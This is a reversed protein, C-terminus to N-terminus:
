RILSIRGQRVRRTSILLLHATEEKLTNEADRRTGATIGSDPEQAAGKNSRQKEDKRSTERENATRIRSSRAALLPRGESTSVCAPPHSGELM